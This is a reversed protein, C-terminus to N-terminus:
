RPRTTRHEIPDRHTPAVFLRQVFIGPLHVDEPPIAGLPVLEDVEAITVRGAMAMAIQFNKTTGKFQLNGYPDGRRARVFAFDATLATELVARRPRGGLDFTREEKGEAVVTGAGTPTFFAPIGAGGARIREALTGQPILEVLVEGKHHQEQIDPNGGMFSGKWAKVLRAKLWTALGQGQNGCNNSIVTLEGVGLERVADILHEPNGSLGFGGVMVSAGPRFDFLAARADPYRKGRAGDPPEGDHTQGSM